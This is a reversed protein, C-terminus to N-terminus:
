RHPPTFMLAIDESVERLKPREMGEMTTGQFSMELAAALREIVSDAEITIWSGQEPTSAEITSM